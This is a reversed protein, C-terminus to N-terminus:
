AERIVDDSAAPDVRYNDLPPLPPMSDDVDTKQLRFCVFFLVIIHIIVAFLTHYCNSFMKIELKVYDVANSTSSV